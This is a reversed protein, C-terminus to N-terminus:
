LPVDDSLCFLCHEFVITALNNSCTSLSWKILPYGRGFGIPCVSGCTAYVHTTPTHQHLRLKNTQHSYIINGQDSQFEKVHIFYGSFGKMNCTATWTPLVGFCKWPVEPLTHGCWQQYNGEWHESAYPACTCPVEPPIHGHWHLAAKPQLWWFWSPWPWWPNLPFCPAGWRILPTSARTPLNNTYPRRKWGNFQM